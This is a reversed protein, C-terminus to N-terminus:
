EGLGFGEFAADMQAKAGQDTVSMYLNIMRDTSHGLMAKIYRTQVGRQMCTTAFTHRAVHCTLRKRLGAAEGISKLHQNAKQNSLFPVPVPASRPEMYAQATAMLPINCIKGSTSSTKLPQIVIMDGHVHDWRLLDLDSYRLGTLCMFLFGRLVVRRSGTLGGHRELHMLRHLEAETLFTPAKPQDEVVLGQATEPVRIGHRRAMRIYKKIVNMMKRRPATGKHGQRKQQGALAKDFRVLMEQTLDAFMLRETRLERVAFEQLRRRALDEVKWTGEKMAGRARASEIQAALFALFDNRDFDTAMEARFQSPTPVRESRAYDALIDAARARKRLLLRNHAEAEPHSKRVQQRAADWDAPLVSVGTPLRLPSGALSVYLQLACCGDKRPADGRLTIKVVTCSNHLVM